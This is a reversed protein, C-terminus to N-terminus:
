GPGVGMRRGELAVLSRNPLHGPGVGGVPHQQGGTREVARHRDVALDALALPIAYVGVPRVLAADVGDGERGAPVAQREGSGAAVSAHAHQRMSRVSAPRGRSKGAIGQPHVGHPPRRVHPPLVPGPQHRAPAVVPDAKPRTGVAGPHLVLLRRRAPRCLSVGVPHSVHSPRGARGVGVHHRAAPLIPRHEDPGPLAPPGECRLQQVADVPGHPPEAPADRPVHQRNARPIGVHRQPLLIGLPSPSLHIGHLVDRTCSPPLLHFSVDTYGPRPHCVLISPNGRCCCCRSLLLSHM